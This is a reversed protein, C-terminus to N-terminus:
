IGFAVNIFETSRHAAARQYLVPVNSM